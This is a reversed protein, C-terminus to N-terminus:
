RQPSNREETRIHVCSELRTIFIKGDDIKATFAVKRITEAVLIAQNDEVVVEIKIKPLMEYFLDNLRLDEIRAIYDQNNGRGYVGRHDHHNPETGSATMHEIGLDLLAEKIEELKYPRIIAEIKKM